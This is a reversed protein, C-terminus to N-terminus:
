APAAHCSAVNGSILLLTLLKAVYTVVDGLDKKAAQEVQGATQNKSRLKNAFLRVQDSPSAPLPYKARFDLFYLLWKRYDALLMPSVKRRKLLDNFGGLINQPIPKM